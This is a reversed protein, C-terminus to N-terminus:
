REFISRLHGDADSAEGSDRLRAFDRAANARALARVFEVMEATTEPTRPLPARTAM